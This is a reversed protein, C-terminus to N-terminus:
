AAVLAAMRDNARLQAASSAGRLIRTLQRLGPRVSVGIRSPWRPSLAAASSFFSTASVIGRPRIARAVGWLRAVREIGYPKDTSPSVRRSM